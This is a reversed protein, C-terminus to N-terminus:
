ADPNLAFADLGALQISSRGFPRDIRERLRDVWYRVGDPDRDGRIPGWAHSALHAYSLPLGPQTMLEYLLAYEQNSLEIEVLGRHVRATAPDLTLDSVQLVAPPHSGPDPHALRPRRALAHVRALVERIAFPKTLYDDAGADLGAVRDDVGDRATLMLVPAWRDARRLARVVDFGDPPPIMTDLLIVSYETEMGCAMADTGTTAIDVSYGARILARQLLGAVNPDDEVVLVHTTQVENDPTSPLMAWDQLTHWGAAGGADTGAQTLTSTTTM